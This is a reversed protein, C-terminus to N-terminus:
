PLTGIDENRSAYYEKAWSHLCDKQSAWEWCGNAGLRLDKSPDFGFAALEQNRRVYQRDAHEGHWLHLLAGRIVGVRARVDQSVNRAWRRFHAFHRRNGGFIRQVCDSRVDGCFAHAMLHDASGSICADYLGHTELLSRRAAWAFGTHGHLFFDGTLVTEPERALVKAFSEWADGVGTFASVSRPLRVVESFPQVVPAQDLARSTELLWDAREFLVDADIWAVKSIQKPLSRVALNLLREKQWMLDRARVRIAGQSKSLEFGSDGFVCEVVRHEIKSERLRRLFLEANARKSRYAHSNFYCSVVAIDGAAEYVVAPEISQALCMQALEAPGSATRSPSALASALRFPPGNM